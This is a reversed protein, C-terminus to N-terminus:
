HRYPKFDSMNVREEVGQSREITLTGNSHVSVVRYPGKLRVGM